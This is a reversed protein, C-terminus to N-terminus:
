FSAVSRAVFSDQDPNTKAIQALLGSINNINHFPMICCAIDGAPGDEGSWYYDAAIPTTLNSNFVQHAEENYGSSPKTDAAWTTPTVGNYACWLYCLENNTPLNWDLGNETKKAYTRAEELDVFAQQNLALIKGHAGGDSIYFVKGIPSDADPYLDGIAYTAAEVLDKDNEPSAWDADCSVTLTASYKDSYAGSITTTYDRRFPANSIDKKAESDLTAEINMLANDANSAIIYDTAIVGTTVANCALEHTVEGTITTTAYGEVNLSYSEPYKVTLKSPTATLTGTQNFKVQAVAHKLTVATYVSADDTGVKFQAVGAFAAKTAVKGTAIKVERLKAADFVGDSYDAWFLITYDKGDKLTVNFTNTTQVVQTAQTAGVSTTAEYVEMIYRTPKDTPETVGVRTKVGDDVALTFSTAKGTPQNGLNDEQSCSTFMVVMGLLAFLFNKRM